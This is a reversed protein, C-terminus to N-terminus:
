SEVHAGKLDTGDAEKDSARSVASVYMQRPIGRALHVYHILDNQVM